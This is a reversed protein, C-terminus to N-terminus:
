YPRTPESIHILSLLHTAELTGVSAGAMQRNILPRLLMVGSVLATVILFINETLFKM